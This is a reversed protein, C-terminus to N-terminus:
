PFIMWDVVVGLAIGALIIGTFLALTIVYAAAHVGAKANKAPTKGDDHLAEFDEKYAEAPYIPKSLVARKM